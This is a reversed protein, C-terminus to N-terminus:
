VSPVPQLTVVIMLTIAAGFGMVPSGATHTPPIVVSLSAVGPPVHLLLLGDTAGTVGVPVTLPRAMPVAVMDYEAAPPHAASCVTVTFGTGPGMVPVGTTHSCLVVVSLLVTVPPVQVLLLGAM